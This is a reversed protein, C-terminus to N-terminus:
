GPKSRGRTIHLFVRGGAFLVLPLSIMQLLVAALTEWRKYPDFDAAMREAEQRPFRRALTDALTAEDVNPSVLMSQGQYTFLVDSNARRWEAVPSLTWWPITSGPPDARAAIQVERRDGCPVVSIM